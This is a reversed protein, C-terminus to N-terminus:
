QSTGLQPVLAGEAFAEDTEKALRHLHINNRELTELTSPALVCSLATAPPILVHLSYRSTAAQLSSHLALVGPLYSDSTLLTFYALKPNTDEALLTDNALLTLNDELSTPELHPHQSIEFPYLGVNLRAETLTPTAEAGGKVAGRKLEVSIELDGGWPEPIDFNMVFDTVDVCGSLSDASLSDPMLEKADREEDHEADSRATVTICASLEPLDGLSTFPYLSLAPDTIRLLMSVSRMLLTEEPRPIEIELNLEARARFLLMFICLLKM